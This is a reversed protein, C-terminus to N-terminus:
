MSSQLSASSDSKRNRNASTLHLYCKPMRCYSRYTQVEHLVAFIKLNIAHFQESFNSLGEVKQERASAGCLHLKLSIILLFFVCVCVCFLVTAIIYISVIFDCKLSYFLLCNGWSNLLQIVDKSPSPFNCSDYLLPHVHNTWWAPPNQFLLPQFRYFHFFSRTFRGLLHKLYHPDLSESPLCLM